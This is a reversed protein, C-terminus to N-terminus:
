WEKQKDYTETYKTPVISFMVVDTTEWIWESGTSIPEM